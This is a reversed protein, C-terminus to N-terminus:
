VKRWGIFKRFLAMSGEFRKQGSVCSRGTAIPIIRCDANRLLRELAHAAHRVSSITCEVEETSGSHVNQESEIPPPAPEGWIWGVLILTLRASSSAAQFERRPESLSGVIQPESSPPVQTGIDEQPGSSIPEPIGFDSNRSPVPSPSHTGQMDSEHASESSSSPTDLLHCLNISKPPSSRTGHTGSKHGSESSSSPTDLLHCLDILKPSPSRAGPSGSEHASESSPSPTDLLHCLNTSKISPSRTKHAGSEHASESSPSPTDLLHFIGTPKPSPSRTRNTGSEDASESLTSPTDLLCYLDPSPSPLDPLHSHLKPGSFSSPKEQAGIDSNPVTTGTHRLLIQSGLCRSM